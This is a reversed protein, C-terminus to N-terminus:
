VMGQCVDSSASAGRTARKSCVAGNAAIAVRCMQDVFAVLAVVAGTADHDHNNESHYSHKDPHSHHRVDHRPLNSARPSSSREPARELTDRQLRYRDHDRRPVNQSLHSLVLCFSLSLSWFTRSTDINSTSHM